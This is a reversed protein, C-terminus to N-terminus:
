LLKKDENWLECDFIGEKSDKAAYNDMKPQADKGSFHLGSLAPVMDTQKSHFGWPKTNCLAQYM